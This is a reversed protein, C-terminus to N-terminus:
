KVLHAGVVDSNHEGSKNVLCLNGWAWNEIPEFLHQINCDQIKIQLVFSHHSRKQNFGPKIKNNNSVVPNM